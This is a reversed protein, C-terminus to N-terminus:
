LLRTAYNIAYEDRCDPKVDIVYIAVSNKSTNDVNIMSGISNDCLVRIGDLISIPPNKPVTVAIVCETDRVRRKIMNFFSSFENFTVTMKFGKTFCLAIIKALCVTISNIVDYETDPVKGLADHGMDLIEKTTVMKIEM